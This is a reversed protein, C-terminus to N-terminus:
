EKEGGGRGPRHLYVYVAGMVTMMAGWWATPHLDNLVTEPPHSIQYIGAALIIVGYVLLLLGVFYWIPITKGTSM